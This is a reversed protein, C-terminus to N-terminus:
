RRAWSRLLECGSSTFPYYHDGAQQSRTEVALFSRLRAKAVPLARGECRSEFQSSSHAALMPAVLMWSAFRVCM